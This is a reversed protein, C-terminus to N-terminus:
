PVGLIKHIQLSLRYGHKMCLDVCLDLNRKNKAEDGTDEPQLYITGRFGEWPQCLSAGSGLVCREPIGNKGIVSNEGVVYKLHRVHTRIREHVVVTKPSVVLTVALYPFDPVYLMGNTEVQINNMGAAILYRIHESFDQRFPEGGTFVILTDYDEKQRNTKYKLMNAIASFLTSPTYKPRPFTYNTDCNPCQLNCGALRVFVAPMGAYPGEGQITYFIGGVVEITGDDQKGVQKEPAQTNLSIM